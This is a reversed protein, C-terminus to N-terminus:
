ASPTPPPAQGHRQEAARQAVGLLVRVGAGVLAVGLVMQFTTFARTVDSTPTIDGFGVTALTTVTFYLADIRTMPESYNSADAAAFGVAVSAMLVIFITAVLAIGEVARLVPYAASRIKHLQRAFIIAFISLGVVVTALGLLAADRDELPFMFYVLLLSGISGAIRFLAALVQQRGAHTSHQQGDM